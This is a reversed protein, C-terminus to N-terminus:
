LYICNNQFAMLFNYYNLLYFTLYKMENRMALTHPNEKKFNKNDKSKWGFPLFFLYIPVSNLDSIIIVVFVSIYTRM